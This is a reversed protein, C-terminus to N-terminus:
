QFLKLYFNMRGYSHVIPTMPIHLVYILVNVALTPNEAPFPLILSFSSIWPFNFHTILSFLMSLNAPICVVIKIMTIADFCVLFSSNRRCLLQLQETWERWGPYLFFEFDLLASMYTNIWLKLKMGANPQFTYVAVLLMKWFYFHGVKAHHTPQVTQRQVAMQTAREWKQM